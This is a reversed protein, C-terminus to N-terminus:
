EGQLAEICFLLSIGLVLGVNTQDLLVVRGINVSHLAPTIRLDFIAALLRFYMHFFAVLGSGYWIVVFYRLSYNEVNKPYTHQVLTFVRWFRPLHYTSSPRWYRFYM